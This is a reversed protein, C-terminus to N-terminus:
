SKSGYKEWAEKAKEPTNYGGEMLLMQAVWPPGYRYAVPKKGRYLIYLECKEEGLKGLVKYNDGDRM